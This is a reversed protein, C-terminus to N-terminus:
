TLLLIWYTKNIKNLHNTRYSTLPRVFVTTHTVTELIQELCYEADKKWIAKERHTENSEVHHQWVTTSIYSRLFLLVFHCYFITM